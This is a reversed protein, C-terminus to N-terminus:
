KSRRALLRARVGAPDFRSVNQQCVRGSQERRQALYAEVESRHRLYYGIVAYTDALLLSPYQQVIEEATAGAEFAAVVSDLTVRTGGVRVVGDETAGLPAPEQAITLGMPMTEQSANYNFSALLAL